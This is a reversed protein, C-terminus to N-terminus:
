GLGSWLIKPKQSGMLCMFQILFNEVRVFSKEARAQNYVMRANQGVRAYWPQDFGGCIIPNMKFIIFIIGCYGILVIPTIDTLLLEM